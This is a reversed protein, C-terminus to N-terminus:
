LIQIIIKSKFCHCVVNHVIHKVLAHDQSRGDVFVSVNAWDGARVELPSVHALAQLHQGFRPLEVELLKIALLLLFNANRLLLFQLVENLVLLATHLLGLLLLQGIRVDVRPDHVGLLVLDHGFVFQMDLIAYDLELLLLLLLLIAHLIVEHWTPTSLGLLCRVVALHDSLRVLVRLQVFVAAEVIPGSVFSLSRSFNRHVLDIEFFNAVSHVFCIM